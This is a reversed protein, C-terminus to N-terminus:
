GRTTVDMSMIRGPLGALFPDIGLSEGKVFFKFEQVLALVSENVRYDVATFGHVAPFDSGYM